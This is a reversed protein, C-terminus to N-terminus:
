LQFMLVSVAAYCNLKLHSCSNFDTPLLVPCNLKRVKHWRLWTGPWLNLGFWPGPNHYRRDCVERATISSYPCVDRNSHHIPFALYRYHWHTWLFRGCFPILGSAATIVCQKQYYEAVKFCFVPSLSPRDERLFLPGLVHRKFTYASFFVRWKLLVKCELCQVTNAESLLSLCPLTHKLTDYFLILFPIHGM